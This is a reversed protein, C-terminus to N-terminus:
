KAKTLWRVVGRAQTQTDGQSGSSLFQVILKFESLVVTSINRCIKYHRDACFPQISVFM